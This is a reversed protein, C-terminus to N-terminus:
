PAAAKLVTQTTGDDSVTQETNVANAATYTRLKVTTVDSKYFFRGFLQIMMERYNTALGTPLTTSVSDLGDSTLKVTTNTLGVTTTPNSVDGWNIGINDGTTLTSVATDSGTLLTRLETSTDQAATDTLIEDTDAWIDYLAIEESGTWNFEFGSLVTDGSSPSAGQYVIIDYSGANADGTAPMTVYYLGGVNTNEAMSVDTDGWAPSTEFSDGDWIKMDSQRIIRCYINSEGGGNYYHIENAAFAPLCLILLVILKKLM